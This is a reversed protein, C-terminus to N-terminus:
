IHILSLNDYNTTAVTIFGKHKDTNEKEPAYASRYVIVNTTVFAKMAEIDASGVGSLEQFELLVKGQSREGLLKGHDKNGFQPFDDSFFERGGALRELTTSKRTGSEGRFIPMFQFECGPDYGRAVMGVITLWVGERDLASPDTCFYDVARELTPYPNDPTADPSAYSNWLDWLSHYENELAISELADKVTTETALWKGEHLRRRLKKAM